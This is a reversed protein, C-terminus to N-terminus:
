PGGHETLLGLTNDMLLKKEQDTIAVLKMRLFDNPNIEQAGVLHQLLWCLAGAFHQFLVAASDRNCGCGRAECQFM